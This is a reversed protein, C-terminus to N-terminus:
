AGVGKKRTTPDARRAANAHANALANSRSRRPGPEGLNEDPVTARGSRNAALSPARGLARKFGRYLTRPALRRRRRKIDGRMMKARKHRWWRDRLTVAFGALVCLAAAALTANGDASLLADASGILAALPAALPGLARGLLGLVTGQPDSLDLGRLPASSLTAAKAALGHVFGVLPALAVRFLLWAPVAVLLAAVVGRGVEEGLLPAEPPMRPEKRAEAEFRPLRRQGVVGHRARGLRGSGEGSEEPRAKPDLETAIAPHYLGDFALAREGEKASLLYAGLGGAEYPPSVVVPRGGAAGVTARAARPAAARSRDNPSPVYLVKRAGLSVGVLEPMLEEGTPPNHAGPARLAACRVGAEEARMAELLDDTFAEIRAPDGAYWVHDSGGLGPDRGRDRGGADREGGLLRHTGGGLDFAELAVIRGAGDTYPVLAWDGSSLEFRLAGGPRQSFGPVACLAPTGFRSALEALVGGSRAAYSIGFGSRRVLGGGVRHGAFFAVLHEDPPCLALLARYVADRRRVEADFDQVESGDAGPPGDGGRQLGGLHEGRDDRPARSVPFSAGPGDSKAARPAFGPAEFSPQEPRTPPGTPDSGGDPATAQKPAPEPLRPSEPVFTMLTPAAALSDVIAEARALARKYASPGEYGELVAVLDPANLRGPVSCGEGSCGVTGGGPPDADEPLYATFTQRACRPCVFHHRVGGESPVTRRVEGAYHECLRLTNAQALRKRNAPGKRGAAASV